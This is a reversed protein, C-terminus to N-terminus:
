ATLQARGRQAFAFGPEDIEKRTGEEKYAEVRYLIDCLMVDCLVYCGMVKVEKV